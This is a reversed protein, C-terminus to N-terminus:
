KAGRHGYATFVSSVSSPCCPTMTLRVSGLADVVPSPPESDAIYETAHDAVPSLLVVCWSTRVMALVPCNMIASPNIHTEERECLAGRM